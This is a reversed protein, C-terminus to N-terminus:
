QMGSILMRLRLLLMLSPQLKEMSTSVRSKPLMVKSYPRNPRQAFIGIDHLLGGLTIKYVTKDM